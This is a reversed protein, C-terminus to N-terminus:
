VCTACFDSSGIQFAIHLTTTPSQFLHPTNTHTHTHIHTHPLLIPFHRSEREKCLGTIKVTICRVRLLMLSSRTTPTPCAGRFSRTLPGQQTDSVGSTTLKQTTNTTHTHTYYGSHKTSRKVGNTQSNFIPTDTHARGHCSQSVRLSSFANM